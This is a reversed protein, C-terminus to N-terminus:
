SDKDFKVERTMVKTGIRMGLITVTLSIAIAVMENLSVSFKNNFTSSAQVRCNSAAVETNGEVPARTKAM